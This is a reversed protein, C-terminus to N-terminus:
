GQLDTRQWKGLSLELSALTEAKSAPRAKCNRPPKGAFAAGHVTVGQQAWADRQQPSCPAKALARSASLVSSLQKDGLVHRLARQQEDSLKGGFARKMNTNQSRIADNIHSARVGFGGGNAMSRAAHDLRQEASRYDKTTFAPINGDNPLHVLLRQPARMAQDASKQLMVPDDIKQALAACCMLGNSRPKPKRSAHDLVLEPSKILQAASYAIGTDNLVLAQAPDSQVQGQFAASVGQKQGDRTLAQREGLHKTILAQQAARDRREAAQAEAEIKRLKAQYQGTARSLLGRLGKPLGAQAKKIDEVRQAEQRKLLDAREKRQEDVLKARRVEFANNQPDVPQKPLDRLRDAIDEVSPLDMESGLRARMEKPKVACWRSLSWIKGDADVAVFGRRDGRALM